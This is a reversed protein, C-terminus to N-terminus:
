LSVMAQYSFLPAASGVQAAETAPSPASPACETKAASISPSPSISITDAEKRSSVMAHYSFLPAASGVQAAESIAVLASAAYETKAASISPSPSISIIDAEKFSLAM